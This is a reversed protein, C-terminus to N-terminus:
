VLDAIMQAARRAGGTEVDRYHVPRGIAGVIADALRDPHTTAVDMHLGAPYRDLRHRVHYNQEFHHALPYYIYPRKSATLEMTTTLGGQVVALDCVALHRYLRDVYGRVDLGPPRPLSGPDIRPGTVLVTRLGEVRRRALVHADIAMELQERGVGSGGVTVVCIPEDDRYGLDSRWEAAEDPTPPTFGTIYGAFDFQAATWESISPLGTGFCGPVVDDRNGVFVSRDRVRPSRAIHEIMEANYDATLDAERDGGDPMPLFGVFDTLWV